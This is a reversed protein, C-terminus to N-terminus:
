HRTTSEIGVNTPQKNLIHEFGCTVLRGRQYLRRSNYGDSIVIGLSPYFNYYYTDALRLISM